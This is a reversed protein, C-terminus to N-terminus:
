RPSQVYELGTVTKSSLVLTKPVVRFVPQKLNNTSNQNKSAQRNVPELGAPLNDLNIRIGTSTNPTDASIPSTSQFMFSGVLVLSPLSGALMGYIFLKGQNQMKMDVYYHVPM